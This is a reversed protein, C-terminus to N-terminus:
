PRWISILRQQIYSFIIKFVNENLVDVTENLVYSM